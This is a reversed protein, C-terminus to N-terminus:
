GKEKEKQRPEVQRSEVALVDIRADLLGPQEDDPLRLLTQPTIQLADVFFSPKHQEIEFLIKQLKDIPAVLQLQVGILRLDNRDRGPLNRASRLKTGNAAAIASLGSQLSALRISESEGEIFLNAAKAAKTQQELARKAGDNQALQTLRAAMLREQDIREKLDSVRSWLPGFGLIAVAGVAAALLLLALFRRLTTSLNYIM